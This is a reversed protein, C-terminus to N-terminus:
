AKGMALGSACGIGVCIAPTAIAVWPPETAWLLAGLAVVLVTLLLYFM